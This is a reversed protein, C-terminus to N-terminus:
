AAQTVYLTLVSSPKAGKVEVEAFGESETVGLTPLYPSYGDVQPRAGQPTVAFFKPWPCVKQWGNGDKDITVQKAVRIVNDGLNVPPAPPAPPALSPAPFQGWDPLAVDDVDYAFGTIGPITQNYRQYLSAHKSDLANGFWGRANTQWAVSILGASYLNDHLFGTGYAGQPGLWGGENFGGQYARAADMYAPGIGTDYAAYIPRNDPFGIARAQRRAEQGDAIGQVRGRQWANASDEWVLAVSLGAARLADFESKGIRKGPDHAVYRIVGPVGARVIAALDTPRAFSYDIVQM